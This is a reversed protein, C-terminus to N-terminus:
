SAAQYKSGMMKQLNTKVEAIDSQMQVTTTDQKKLEKLKARYYYITYSLAVTTLIILGIDVMNIGEFLNIKGGENFTQSVPAAPMPAPAQPQTPPVYPASSYSGTDNFPMPRASDPSFQDM